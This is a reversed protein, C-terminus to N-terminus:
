RPPRRHRALGTLMAAGGLWLAWTAPEPVPVTTLMVDLSMALTGPRMQNGIPLRAFPGQLLMVMDLEQTIDDGAILNSRLQASSQFDSGLRWLYLSNSLAVPDGDVPTFAYTLTPTSVQRMSVPPAVLAAQPGEVEVSGYPSMAMSLTATLTGVLTQGQFVPAAVTQDAFYINSGSEYQLEVPTGLPGDVLSVALTGTVAARDASVGAGTSYAGDSSSWSLSLRSHSEPSALTYAAAQAGPAGLWAFVAVAAWHLQKM